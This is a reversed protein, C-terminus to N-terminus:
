VLYVIIVFNLVLVVIQVLTPYRYIEYIEIPVMSSTIIVAFWEAWRKELWLGVSENLFFGAYIL